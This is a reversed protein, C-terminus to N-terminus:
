PAAAPVGPPSQLDALFGAVLAVVEDEKERHPVHGSDALIQAQAPGGARAALEAPFAGSGYEDRNGHIALLPCRVRPLVDFLNWEAFEPSLWVETWADLVWGAKDGHLAELRRMGGPGEFYARASRIGELTRAEVFAQTGLTVLGVCADAHIAAINVAMGGGVSHGVLAVSELDLGAQLAPFVRQAEDSIFDPGPRERRASSRGYGERDYAIVPRKLTQALREPFSRWLAVCGLSDHLLLVPCLRPERLSPEWTRVFLRAHRLSIFQDHVAVATM